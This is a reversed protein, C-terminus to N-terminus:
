LFFIQILILIKMSDFIFQFQFFFVFFKKWNGYLDSPSTMPLQTFSNKASPSNLNSNLRQSPALLNEISFPNFSSVAAAAAAQMANQTMNPFLNGLKFASSQFQNNLLPSHNGSSNSPSSTRPTTTNAFYNLAATVNSKSHHM